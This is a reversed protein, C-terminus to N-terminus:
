NKLALKLCSQCLDVYEDAPRYPKNCKKCNNFTKVRELMDKLKKLYEDNGFKQKLGYEKTKTYLMKNKDNFHLMRGEVIEYLLIDERLKWNTIPEKSKTKKNYLPM